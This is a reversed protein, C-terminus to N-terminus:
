KLDFRSIIKSFTDSANSSKLEKTKKTKAKLSPLFLIHKFMRNYM